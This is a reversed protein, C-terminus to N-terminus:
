QSHAAIFALTEAFILDRDYDLTAVHYSRPLDRVVIEDSSLHTQLYDTSRGPVVHDATSRFILTPCHILDLSARVDAFMRFMSVAPALPTHDYGHRQSGPRSIDHARSPVTPVVGSALLVLRQSGYLLLAPNVLTLGAVRAPHQSALRLALTAGMSHGAIFVQDCTDALALFEREACHYWDRWRTANLERWHTGHGPLRPLAVRYGADATLQAWERLAHPSSNFGHLFLVAIRGQGLHLPRAHQAVQMTAM